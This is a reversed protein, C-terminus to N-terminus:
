PIRKATTDIRKLFASYVIPDIILFQNWGASTHRKIFKEYWSEKIKLPVIEAILTYFKFFRKQIKKWPLKWAVLNQKIKSTSLVRSLRVWYNFQCNHM